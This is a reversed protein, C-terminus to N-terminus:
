KPAVDKDAEQPKKKLEDLYNTLDPKLSKCLWMMRREIYKLTGDYARFAQYRANKEPTFTSHDISGSFEVIYEMSWSLIKSYLRYSESIRMKRGFVGLPTEEKASSKNHQLYDAIRTIASLADGSNNITLTLPQTSNTNKTQSINPKSETAKKDPVVLEVPKDNAM